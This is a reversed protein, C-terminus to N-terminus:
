GKVLPEADHCWLVVGVVVGAHAFDMGQTLSYHSFFYGTTQSRHAGIEGIVFKLLKDSQHSCTLQPTLSTLAPLPPDLLVLLSPTATRMHPGTATPLPIVM